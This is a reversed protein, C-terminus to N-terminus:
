DNGDKSVLTKDYLYYKDTNYIAQDVKYMLLSAFHLKRVADERTIRQNSHAKPNRIGIMAGAFMEMYGKQVNRGSETDM